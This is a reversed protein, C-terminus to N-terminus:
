LSEQFMEKNSEDTKGRKSDVQKKAGSLLESLLETQRDTRTNTVKM